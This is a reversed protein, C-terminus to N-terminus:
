FDCFLYTKIIALPQNSITSVHTINTEHTSRRSLLLIAPENLLFQAINELPVLAAYELVGENCNGINLYIGVEAYGPHVDAHQQHLILFLYQIVDVSVFTLHATRQAILYALLHPDYGLQDKIAILDFFIGITHVVENFIKMYRGPGIALCLGDRLLNNM